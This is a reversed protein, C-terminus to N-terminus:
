HTRATRRRALRGLAAAGATGGTLVPAFFLAGAVWMNAGIVDATASQICFLAFAPLTVCVLATLVGRTYGGAAALVALGIAAAAWHQVTVPSAYEFPDGVAPEVSWDPPFVLWWLVVTAVGLVGTIAVTRLPTM